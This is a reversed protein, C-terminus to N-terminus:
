DTKPKIPNEEAMRVSRDDKEIFSEGNLGCGCSSMWRLWVLCVGNEITIRNQAYSKENKADLISETWHVTRVDCLSCINVQIAKSISHEFWFDFKPSKLFAKSPSIQTEPRERSVLHIWCHMSYRISSVLMRCVKTMEVFDDFSFVVSYFGYKRSYCLASQGCERQPSTLQWLITKHNRRKIPCSQPM